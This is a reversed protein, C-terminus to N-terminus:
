GNALVRRAERYRANWYTEKLNSIMV